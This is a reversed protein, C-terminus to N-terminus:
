QHLKADRLKKETRRNNRNKMRQFLKVIKRNSQEDKRRQNKSIKIVELNQDKTTIQIATKEWNKAKKLFIM